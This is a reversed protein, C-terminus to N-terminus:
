ALGQAKRRRRRVAIGVGIPVAFPLVAGCAVVIGTSVNLFVTGALRFANKFRSSVTEDDEAMPLNPAVVSLTLTALAARNELYQAHGELKEIDTRVRVLETEAELMEKVSKAASVIALLREELKRKARLEAETDAHEETVDRGSETESLVTGSKRLDALTHELEAGPVRVVVHARSVVDETRFLEKTVVFGGRTTALETAREAVRAPDQARLSLEAESIVLRADAPTREASGGGAPPSSAASAAVAPAESSAAPAEAKACAVAASVSLLVPLVLSRTKM